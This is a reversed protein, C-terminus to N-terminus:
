VLIAERIANPPLKLPPPTIEISLINHIPIVQVKSELDIILHQSELAEQIKKALIAEDVIQRPFEYNEESGNIFKVTMRVIVEDSM